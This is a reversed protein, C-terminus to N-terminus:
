RIFPSIAGSKCKMEAMHSVAGSLETQGSRKRLISCAKSFIPTLPQAPNSKLLWFIGATKPSLILRTATAKETFFLSQQAIGQQLAV